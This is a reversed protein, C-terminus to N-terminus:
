ATSATMMDIESPSVVVVESQAFVPSPVPALAVALLLMWKNM